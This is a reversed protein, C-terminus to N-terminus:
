CSHISNRYEYSDVGETHDSICYEINKECELCAVYAIGHKYCLQM